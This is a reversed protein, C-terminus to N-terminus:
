IFASHRMRCKQQQWLINGSESGPHVACDSRIETEQWKQWQVRQALGPSWLEIGLLVLM